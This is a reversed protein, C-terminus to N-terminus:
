KASSANLVSLRLKREYRLIEEHGPLHKVDGTVGYGNGEYLRRARENSSRTWLSATNWGRACMESHMVALVRGGVGSGWRGPDVFVMSVHGVGSVISGAGDQARYAEALAM